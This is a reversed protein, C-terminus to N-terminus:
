RYFTGLSDEMNTKEIYNTLKADRENHADSLKYDTKPNHQYNNESKKLRNFM